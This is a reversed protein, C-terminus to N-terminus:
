LSPVGIVLHSRDPVPGDVTRLSKLQEGRFADMQTVCDIVVM